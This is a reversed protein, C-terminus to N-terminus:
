VSKARLVKEVDAEVVYSGTDRPAGVVVYRNNARLSFKLPHGVPLYTETDAIYRILQLTMGGANADVVLASVKDPGAQVRVLM